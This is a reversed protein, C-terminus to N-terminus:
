VTKFRFFMPLYTIGNETRENGEVEFGLKRYIPAAYQSAHVTVQQVSQDGERCIQLAHEVLERGIGRGQTEVFLMAIHDFGKLELMGIIRSNEEAVIIKNNAKCRQVMATSQAYRYFEAIGEPSFDSAVFENFVRAVLACVENEEGPKMLRISVRDTM